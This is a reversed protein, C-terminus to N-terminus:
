ESQDKWRTSSLQSGMIGKREFTVVTPRLAAPARARHRAVPMFSLSKPLGMTAM